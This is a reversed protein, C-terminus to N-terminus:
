FSKLRLNNRVNARGHKPCCIRIFLSQTNPGNTRSVRENLSIQTQDLLTLRHSTIEEADKYESSQKSKQRITETAKASRHLEACQWEPIAESQAGAMFVETVETAYQYTRQEDLWNLVKSAIPILVM